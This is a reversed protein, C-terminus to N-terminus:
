KSEIRKTLEGLTVEYGKKEYVLCGDDPTRSLLLGVIYVLLQPNKVMAPGTLHTCFTNKRRVGEGKDGDANGLGMKVRFMPDDIGKIESCKNIFGVAPTDLFDCELIVDGVMRTRNQETVAFGFFGLGGFVEGNCDTISEGLAEFSNGTFLATKGGDIYAKLEDTYRKMDGLVVKLNRETGSGMYIFDYDAPRIEDGISLRDIQVEEGNFELLKKLSVLNAYDGYLNMIDHYLHLIKM